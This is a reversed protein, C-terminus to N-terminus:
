KIMRDRYEIKIDELLKVRSEMNESLVEYRKDIAQLVDDIETMETKFNGLTEELKMLYAKEDYGEPITFNCKQKSKELDSIVNKSDAQCYIYLGERPYIVKNM